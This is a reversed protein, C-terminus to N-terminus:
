HQEKFTILNESEGQVLESSWTRPLGRRLQDVHDLTSQHLAGPTGGFFSIADM